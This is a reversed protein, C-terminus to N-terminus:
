SWNSSILNRSLFRRNKVEYGQSKKNKGGENNQNFIKFQYQRSLKGENIKSKLSQYIDLNANLSCLIRSKNFRRRLSDMVM